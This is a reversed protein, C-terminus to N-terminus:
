ELKKGHKMMLEILEEAKRKPLSDLVSLIIGTLKSSNRLGTEINSVAQKSSLGLLFAFEEQGMNLKLRIRKFESPPM